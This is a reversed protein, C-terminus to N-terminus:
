KKILKFTNVGTETKLSAFYLGTQLASGDIVIKTDKPNLSLICKGMADFLILSLVQTKKTEITWFDASPNPFIKLPIQALDNTELSSESTFFINDFHFTKDGGQDFKLEKINFDYGKFHSLPVDVSVWQKQALAGQEQFVDYFIEASTISIPTVRLSSGGDTWYDFHLYKMESVDISNGAGGILTGQFDLSPYTLALDGAFSEIVVNGSTAGWNPNFDTNEVDKYHSTADPAGTIKSFISIVKDASRTPKPAATNPKEISKAANFTVNDFYVTHGKDRAAYSPLLIFQDPNEGGLGGVWVSIDFELEVWADAIKNQVVVEPYAAGTSTALKLGIPSAFGEQYVMMKVLSNAATVIFTGIDSGHKSECGAKGWADTTGYDISLKGVNSSGNTMDVSPNPSVSFEPNNEGAPAEFTAWTWNAGNGGAEFDIPAKQAFIYSVSTLTILLLLKKM